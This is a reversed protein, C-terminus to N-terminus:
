MRPMTLAGADDAEPEVFDPADDPLSPFIRLTLDACEQIMRCTIRAHAIRAEETAEPIPAPRGLAADMALSFADKADLFKNPETSGPLALVGRAAPLMPASGRVSSAPEADKRFFVWGTPESEEGM